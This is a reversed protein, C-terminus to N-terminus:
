RKRDTVSRSRALRSRSKSRDNRRRDLNRSEHRGAAVANGRQDIRNGRAGNDESSTADVSGDVPFSSVEKDHSNDDENMVVRGLKFPSHKALREAWPDLMTPRHFLDWSTWGHFLSVFGPPEHHQRVLVIEKTSTAGDKISGASDSAGNAVSISKPMKPHFSFTKFFSKQKHSAPTSNSERLHRKKAILASETADVWHKIVGLASTAIKQHVKSGTWVYVRSRISANPSGVGQSGGDIVIIAEDSLHVQHLSIGSPIFTPINTDNSNTPKLSIAMGSETLSPIAYVGIEEPVALGDAETWFATEVEEKEASDRGKFSQQWIDETEDYSKGVVMQICSEHLSHSEILKAALSSAQVQSNV